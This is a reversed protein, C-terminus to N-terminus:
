RLGHRRPEGVTTVTGALLESRSFTAYRVAAVGGAGEQSLRSWTQRLASM